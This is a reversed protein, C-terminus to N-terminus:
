VGGRAYGSKLRAPRGQRPEGALGFLGDGRGLADRKRDSAGLESLGFFPM